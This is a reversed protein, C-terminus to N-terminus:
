LYINEASSVGWFRGFSLTLVPLSPFTEMVSRLDTRDVYGPPSHNWVEFPAAALIAVVDYNRVGWENHSQRENLSAECDALTIDAEPYQRTGNADVWSGADYPSVAILSQPTRLRVVVGVCGFANREGGGDFRDTPTVLSCSLGGQAMGRIVHKLDHPYPHTVGNSVGGPCGSFHVILADRSRLFAEIAAVPPKAHM